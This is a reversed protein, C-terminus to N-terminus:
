PKVAEHRHKKQGQFLDRSIMARIKEMMNMGQLGM